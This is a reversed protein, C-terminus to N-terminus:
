SADQDLSVNWQSKDTSTSWWGYEKENITVTGESTFDNYGKRFSIKEVTIKIRQM